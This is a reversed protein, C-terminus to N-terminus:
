TNGGEGGGWGGLGGEERRKRTDRRSITRKETTAFLYLSEYKHFYGVKYSIVM